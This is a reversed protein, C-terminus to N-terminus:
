GVWKEEKDERVKGTVVSDPIETLVTNTIRADVTTPARPIGDLCRLWRRHIESSDLHFLDVCRDHVEDTITGSV